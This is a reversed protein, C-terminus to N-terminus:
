SGREESWTGSEAGGVVGGVFAGGVGEAGGVTAGGGDTRSTHM